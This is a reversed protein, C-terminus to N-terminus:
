LTWTLGYPRKDGFTYSGIISRATRPDTPLGPSIGALAGGALFGPANSNLNVDQTTEYFAPAANSTLNAYTLDFSRSFGGRIVWKNGAGPSYAFGIRPSWDNPSFYPRGFRIGGPINAPASLIQARSAIPMTVYEYRVGL